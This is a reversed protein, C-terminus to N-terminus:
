QGKEDCLIESVLRTRLFKVISIITVEFTRILLGFYLYIAM